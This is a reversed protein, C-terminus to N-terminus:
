EDGFSRQGARAWLVIIIFIKSHVHQYFKRNSIKRKFVRLESINCRTMSELTWFLELWPVKFINKLVCQNSFLNGGTSPVTYHEVTQSLQLFCANCICFVWILHSKYLEKCSRYCFFMWISDYKILVVSLQQVAYYQSTQYSKTFTRLFCTWYTVFVNHMHEENSEFSFNLSHLSKGQIMSRM